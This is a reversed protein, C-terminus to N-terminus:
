TDAKVVESFELKTTYHAIDANERHPATKFHVSHKVPYPYPRHQAASERAALGSLEKPKPRQFLPTCLPSSRARVHSCAWGRRWTRPAM